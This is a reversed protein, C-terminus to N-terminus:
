SARRYGTHGHVAIITERERKECGSGALNEHKQGRWVACALISIKSSRAAHVRYDRRGCSFEALGRQVRQVPADSRAHHVEAAPIHGDFIRPGSPEDRLVFSDAVAHANKVDAM